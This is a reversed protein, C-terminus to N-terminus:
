CDTRGEVPQAPSTYTVTSSANGFRHPNQELLFISAQIEFVAANPEVVVGFCGIEKTGGFGNRITRRVLNRADLQHKFEILMMIIDHHRHPATAAFVMRM